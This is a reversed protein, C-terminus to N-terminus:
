LKSQLRLFTVILKIEQNVQSVRSYLILEWSNFIIGKESIVRGGNFSVAVLARPTRDFYVIISYGELVFITYRLVITM